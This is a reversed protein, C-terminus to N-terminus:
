RASAPLTSLAARCVNLLFFAAAEKMQFEQALALARDFDTRGLWNLDWNYMLGGLGINVGTQNGRDLQLQPVFGALNFEAIAGKMEEFGRNVDIAAAIGALQMLRLARETPEEIVAARRKYEDLIRTARPKDKRSLRGILSGLLLPDSRWNSIEAALTEAKDFDEKDLASWAERSLKEDMRQRLTNMANSRGKENSLREILAAAREFDAGYSAQFVARQVLTDKLQPDAIGDARTLLQEITGPDTLVLYQREDPPVRRLADLVRARFAPARDPIFRDFYPVLLRPIAYDLLSRADLRAGSAGAMAADLRRIVVDYALDVFQEVAATGSNSPAMPDRKTADSSFRLVGEGFSPFVYPALRHIDEFTPQGRRATGLALLYIDDAAKVDKFRIMTLLSTLLNFDGSEAFPRAALAARQPDRQAFYFSLGSQLQIRERNRPRSRSKLDSTIEGQSDVLRTAWESDHPMILRIVAVRAQYPLGAGSQTAQTSQDTLKESIDLCDAFLRRARPEDYGWLADAIQAQVVVRLTEDSFSKQAELVQDLVSKIKQLLPNELKRRETTAQKTPSKQAPANQAPAALLPTTILLFICTTNKVRNM